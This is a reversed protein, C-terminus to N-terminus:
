AEQHTANGVFQAGRYPIRHQIGVFAELEGSKSFIPRISLRNWFSTGDKKRNLIDIEIPRREKIAVHLQRVTEPDTEEGQLFRCNRGMVEERRYGTLRLFAENAFVIPNDALRPDTILFSREWEPESVLRHAEEITMLAM